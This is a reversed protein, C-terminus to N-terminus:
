NKNKMIYGFILFGIGIILSIVIISNSFPADIKDYNSNFTSAPNALTLIAATIYHIGKQSILLLASLGIFFLGVIKNKM